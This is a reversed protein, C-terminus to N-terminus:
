WGITNYVNYQMVCMINYQMINCMIMTNIFYQIPIIANIINYQINYQYQILLCQHISM